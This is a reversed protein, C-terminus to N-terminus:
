NKKLLLGIKFDVNINSEQFNKYEYPNDDFQHYRFFTEIIDSEIEYKENIVFDLIYLLSIIFLIILFILFLVGGFHTKNSKQGFIYYQPSSNLFDLSNM